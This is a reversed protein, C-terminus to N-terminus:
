RDEAPFVRSGRRSVARRASRGHVLWRGAIARRDARRRRDLADNAVLRAALEARRLPARRPEPKVGAAPERLRDGVAPGGKRCVVNAPDHRRQSRRHAGRATLRNATCLSARVPSRRRGHRRRLSRKWRCNATSLHGAHDRRGAHGRDGRADGDCGAQGIPACHAALAARSPRAASRRRRDGRDDDRRDAPRAALHQQDDARGLCHARVVRVFRAAGFAACTSSKTDNKSLEFACNGFIIRFTRKRSLRGIM